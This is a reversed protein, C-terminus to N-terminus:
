ARHAHLGVSSRSCPLLSGRCSPIPTTHPHQLQARTFRALINSPRAFPRGFPWAAKLREVETLGGAKGSTASLM